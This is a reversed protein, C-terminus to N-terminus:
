YEKTEKITKPFVKDLLYKLTIALGLLGLAFTFGVMFGNFWSNEALSVKAQISQKILDSQEEPPQKAILDETAKVFAQNTKAKIKRTDAITKASKAILVTGAAKGGANVVKSIGDASPLSVCGSTFIAFMTTLIVFAFAYLPAYEDKYYIKSM